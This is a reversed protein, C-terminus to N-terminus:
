PTDDAPSSVPLPQLLHRPVNCVLEVTSCSDDGSEVANVEVGPGLRFGLGRLYERGGRDTAYEPVGYRDVRPFTVNMSVVRLQAICKPDICYPRGDGDECTLLEDDGFEFVEAVNHITVQDCDTLDGLAETCDSDWPTTLLLPPEALFEIGDAGMLGTLTEFYSGDHGQHTLLNAKEIAQNIQEAARPLDRMLADPLFVHLYVGNAGQLRFLNPITKEM